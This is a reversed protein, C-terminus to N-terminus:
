PAPEPQVIFDLGITMYGIGLRTVGPCVESGSAVPTILHAPHSVLIAHPQTTEAVEVGRGVVFDDGVVIGAIAPRPKARIFFDVGIRMVGIGDRPSGDYSHYLKLDTIHDVYDRGEVFALIDSRYIRAGFLIDEGEQYAWPSLFRRLDDNLVGSYYGPDRGAEFVVNAEIRLREFVPPIAHITAFPSTLGAVYAEIDQMLVPSARPELVNIAGTRRVNPVIVLAAEGAKFSGTADTHPLCKVKFFEPFAELVLRELDWATVARSRHRLRESSRRFYGTSDERGRGRLSPDPQVVRQINANRRVLRTITGASVGSLLHQEYDDLTLGAGAQFRALVANPTVDLTRSASEPARQILARLWVLGSRLSDHELTAPRPVAVEIVGPKQFGETSDILVASSSLAQWADGAGLYSWTTDGPKLVAASTSTGVDIRFLFPLNAPPQVHEIGLYLAAQGEIEPVVRAAAGVSARTAGFPGVILFTAASHVDANVLDLSATASYDLTLSKLVPTYPEKPLVPKDGTKWQSLAIAQNIYRRPYATHGFAEFPVTTANVALDDKSPAALVMRVFGFRSGATFSEPQELDPQEVYQTGAFASDFATIDASITRPDTAVPAFLPLPVVLNRFSRDYLIDVKAEFLNQFSASTQFGILDLYERYQDLFDEPPSKWELHLKLSTMRKSFVEASGIYFPAGLQPQSGFVPMPQNVNLPGDANQVVLNLVGEVAVSLDIKEVVLGDLVKYIGTEGKILVRLLPRGLSPGPGHLAPDFAVVAAAAASLTVKLALAPKGSGDGALLSAEVTDAALWGKPGTLTVDLAGGISQALVPSPSSPLSLHALLTITREGEALGLIPAAVAFGLPAETMFRQAPDLGLQSRGFTFKSPGELETFGDAVFFRRNKRLDQEVVLRKIGSLAAASVVLENQTAYALPRGKDDKGADLLTGAAVLTPDATKALELVVHVDDPSAGRLPLGLETGYYYHLHNQTLQNLDSQLNQFQKLFALFLVLHPPWDTRAELVGDLQEDPLVPGPVPGPVLLPEVLPTWDGTSQGSLDYYRIEAAVNRAYEVLDSFSREDPVIYNAELAPLLRQLQNTGDSRLLNGYRRFLDTTM